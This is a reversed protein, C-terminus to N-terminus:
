TWLCILQGNFSNFSQLAIILDYLLIPGKHAENQAAVTFIILTHFLSYYIIAYILSLHVAKLNDQNKVLYM